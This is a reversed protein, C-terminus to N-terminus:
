THGHYIVSVPPSASTVEHPSSHSLPLRKGALAAQARMKQFNKFSVIGSFPYSISLGLGPVDKENASTIPELNADLSLEGQVDTDDILTELMSLGSTFHPGIAACKENRGPAALAEFGDTTIYSQGDDADQRILLANLRSQRTRIGSRWGRRPMLPTWCCAM